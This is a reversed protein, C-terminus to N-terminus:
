QPNDERNRFRDLEQILWEATAMKKGSCIIQYPKGSMSSKTAAYRIFDETTKVRNKIHSYKRRIHAGAETNNHSKGNRIFTCNSTEITALLYDIESDMDAYSSFPYLVWITCIMIFSGKFVRMM